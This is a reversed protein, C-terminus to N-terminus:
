VTHMFCSSYAHLALLDGDDQPQGAGGPAVDEGADKEEQALMGVPLRVQELHRVVKRRRGEAHQLGLSVIAEDCAFGSGGLGGTQEGARLHGDGEDAVAPKREGPSAAVDAMDAVVIDVNPALAGAKEEGEASPPGKAEDRRCADLVPATEALLAKQVFEGGVADHRM